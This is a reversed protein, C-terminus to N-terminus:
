PTLIAIKRTDWNMQFMTITEINGLSDSLSSRKFTARTLGGNELSRRVCCDRFGIITGSDDDDDM